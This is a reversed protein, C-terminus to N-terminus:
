KSPVIDLRNPQRWAICHVGPKRAKNSNLHAKTIWSDALWKQEKIYCRVEM